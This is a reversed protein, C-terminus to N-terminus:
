RRNEADTAEAMAVAEVMFAAMREDNHRRELASSSNKTDECRLQGTRGM